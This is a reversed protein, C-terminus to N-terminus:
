ASYRSSLISDMSSIEFTSILPILSLSIFILTSRYRRSAYSSVKKSISLAIIASFMDIEPPSILSPFVLLAILVTPSNLSTPSISFMITLWSLPLIIYRFSTASTISPYSSGVLKALSLLFGTMDRCTTFFLPSFRSEAVSLIKSIISLARFMPTMGAFIVTENVFSWDSIILFCNFLRSFLM